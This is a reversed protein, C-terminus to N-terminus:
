EKHINGMVKSMKGQLFEALSDYSTGEAHFSGKTGWIVNNTSSYEGFVGDKEVRVTDGEYIKTGDSVKLGTYQGRTTPKIEVWDTEEGQIIILHKGFLLGNHYYHGYVWEGNDVRVGRYGIPRRHEDFFENLSEATENDILEDVRKALKDLDVGKKPYNADYVQRELWQIYLPNLGTPTLLPVRKPRCKDIYIDEVKDRIEDVKKDM